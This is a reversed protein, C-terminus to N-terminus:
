CDDLIRETDTDKILKHLACYKKDPCEQCKLNNCFLAVCKLSDTMKSSQWWTQYKHIRKRQVMPM